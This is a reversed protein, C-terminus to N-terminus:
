EIIRYAISQKNKFEEFEEKTVFGGMDHLHNGVAVHYSENGIPLNKLLVKGNMDLKLLNNANTGPRSGDLTKADGNINYELVGNENAKPIKHPEPTVSILSASLIGGHAEELEELHNAILEYNEADSLGRTITLM